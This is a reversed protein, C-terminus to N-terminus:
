RINYKDFMQFTNVMIYNWYNELIKEEEKETSNKSLSGQKKALELIDYNTFALNFASPLGQLWETYAQPKGYRAIAWGYENMFTNHLFKLKAETTQPNDGYGEADICDIIYDQIFKKQKIQQKTM